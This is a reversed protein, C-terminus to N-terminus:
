GNAVERAIELARRMYNHMTQQSIVQLARERGFKYILFPMFEAFKCRDKEICHKFAMRMEDKNYVKAVKLLAWSQKNVYRPLKYKVGVMYQEYLEDGAFLKEMQMLKIGPETGQELPIVRNTKKIEINHKCVIEGTDLSYVMLETGKEEIRVRNMLMHAGRPMEYFNGDFNITNSKSLEYVRKKPKPIHVQTLYKREDRFMDRPSFHKKESVVENGKTDLWRLCAVNLADIGCYTRGELFNYKVFGVLNEVRGKTNPDRPKCFTATFATRKIFEEFEKVFIIDGYNENRVFVRDLDYMIKRTRGGFYQFAYEHARIATATTFPDPEFHVFRMSSYSLVMCFFYVKVTTGYMTKMKYQGFDVQAEEGAAERVRPSYTRKSFQALGSEERLQKVYRYFTTKSVEFDEFTEQLRFLINACRTQPTLKIIDLIFARYDELHYIKQKEAKQFADESKNWVTQVYRRGVEVKEAIERQTMGRKQLEKIEKFKEYNIM